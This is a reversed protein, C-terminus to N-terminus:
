LPQMVEAVGVSGHKCKARRCSARPSAKADEEMDYVAHVSGLLRSQFAMVLGRGLGKAARNRDSGRKM